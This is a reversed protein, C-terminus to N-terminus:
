RSKAKEKKREHFVHSCFGNRNKTRTHCEFDPADWKKWRDSLGYRTSMHELGGGHVVIDIFGHDILADLSYTFARKTIGLREAEKYTLSINKENEPPHDAYWKAKEQAKKIDKPIKQSKRKTLFLMFVQPAKGGLDIWATSRLIENSIWTNTRPTFLHDLSM